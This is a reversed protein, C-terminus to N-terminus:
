SNILNTIDEKYILPLYIEYFDNNLYFSFLMLQFDNEDFVEDDLYFDSADSLDLSFTDKVKENNEDYSFYNVFIIKNKLQKTDIFFKSFFEEQYDNICLVFNYKEDTLYDNKNIM